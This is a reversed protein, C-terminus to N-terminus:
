WPGRLAPGEEHNALRQAVVADQFSYGGSAVSGASVEALLGHCQGLQVMGIDFRDIFEARLVPHVKKHHLEHRPLRERIPQFAPRKWLFVHDCESHLNGRRQFICVLAADHM